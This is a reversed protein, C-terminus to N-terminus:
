AFLALHGVVQALAPSHPHEPGFHFGIALNQFRARRARRHEMVLAGLAGRLRVRQEGVLDERTGLPRWRPPNLGSRNASRVRGTETTGWIMSAGRSDWARPKVSTLITPTPPPPLLATLRMTSAPTCPTSNM